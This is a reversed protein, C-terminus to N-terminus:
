LPTDSYYYKDGMAQYAAGVATTGTPIGAIYYGEEFNKTFMIGYLLMVGKHRAPIPVEATSTVTRSNELGIGVSLIAAISLNAQVNSQVTGSLGMGAKMPSVYSFNTWEGKTAFVEYNGSDSWDSTARIFRWEGFNPIPDPDPSADGAGGGGGWGGGGGGGIRDVTEDGSQNVEGYLDIAWSTDEVVVIAGQAMLRPTGMTGLLLFVGGFALKGLIKRIAM